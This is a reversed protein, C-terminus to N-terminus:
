VGMVNLDLIFQSMFFPYNDAYKVRFSMTRFRGLKTTFPSSSFVNITRTGSAGAPDWDDPSYEITANSTGISAHSSCDLWLKNLVKWNMTGADFAETTYQCTFNAGFDQYTKQGLASVYTQGGIAVYSGGNYMSFVAEIKLNTNDSGRWEYWIKEEIDYLWTTQNTVLVYFNHGDVSISFGDKDLYVNSKTNSTSVYPQLTRDVVSNSIPEIKFSNIAFVSVTQKEDQGVFYTTDGITCM